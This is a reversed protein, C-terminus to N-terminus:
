IEGAQDLITGYIRQSYWKDAIVKFMKKCGSVAKKYTSELLKM